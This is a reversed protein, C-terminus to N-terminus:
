VQISNPLHRLLRAFIHTLQKKSFKLKSIHVTVGINPIIVMTVSVDYAGCEFASIWTVHNSCKRTHASNSTIM